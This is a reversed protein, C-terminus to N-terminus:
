PWPPIFPGVAAHLRVHSIEGVTRVPLRQGALQGNGCLGEDIAAVHVRGAAGAKVADAGNIPAHQALAFAPPSGMQFAPSYDLTAAQEAIAQVIRPRAHGANCCWLGGTADLVERGDVTRYFMGSASAMLRPASKFQRNASFPMWFADMADPARTAERTYHGSYDITSQPATSQPDDHM